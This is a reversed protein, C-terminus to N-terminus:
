AFYSRTPIVLCSRARRLATRTRAPNMRSRATMRNRSHRFSCPVSRSSSPSFVIAFTAPWDM